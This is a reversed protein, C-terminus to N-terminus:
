TPPSTQDRVLTRGYDMESADNMYLVNTCHFEGSSLIGLLGQGSTYHHLLGPLEDSPTPVGQLRQVEREIFRVPDAPLEDSPM